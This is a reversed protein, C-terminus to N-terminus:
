SSLGFFKLLVTEVVPAIHGIGQGFYGVLQNTNGYIMKTYQPGEDVTTGTQNATNTVGLVASWQKLQEFGCQPTVLNDALGHAVLFRPRKGLYGPFANYVFNAWQQPTHTLGRACTQNSGFPTPDSGSGALCGFPVGSYAAGAEFVDPYAGVLVNTMMAGSSGGMVFVRSKDAGYTQLTYNVMSIIGAADGGAGHTLSEASNVDWCNIFRQTQPYIMIFGLSESFSPLNTSSFWQSATGGCPHLAVVIAPNPALKAPVQIFMQVNTPNNGFCNVQQLAGFASGALALMAATTTTFTKM